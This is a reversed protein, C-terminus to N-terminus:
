PFFISKVPERSSYTPIRIVVITSHAHTICLSWKGSTSGAFSPRVSSLSLSLSLYLYLSLSFALFCTFSLLLLPDFSPTSTHLVVSWTHTCSATRWQMCIASFWDSCRTQRAFAVKERVGVPTSSVRTKRKKSSHRTVRPFTGRYRSWEQLSM